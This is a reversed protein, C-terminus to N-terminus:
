LYSLKLLTAVDKNPCTFVIEKKKVVRGDPTKAFKETEVLEHKIGHLKCFEKFGEPYTITWGDRGKYGTRQVWEMGHLHRFAQWMKRIVYPESM